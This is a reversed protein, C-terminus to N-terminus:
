AADPAARAYLVAPTSPGFPAGDLSGVLEVSSFGIERMAGVLAQADAGGHGLHFEFREGGRTVVLWRNHVSGAEWDYEVEELVLMGEPGERWDKVTIRRRASDLNVMRLVAWGDPELAQRLQGLAGSEDGSAVFNLSSSLNLVIDFGGSPEYLEPEGVVFDIEVGEELARQRAVEMATDRQGVATVEFGAQAFALAYQGVGCPLVLARGDTLGTRELVASVDNRAAEWVAESVTIPTFVRYLEEEHM